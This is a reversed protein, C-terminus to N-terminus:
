EWIDNKDVIRESFRDIFGELRKWKAPLENYPFIIADPRYQFSIKDINKENIYITMQSCNVTNIGSIKEFEDKLVYTTQGNGTVFMTALENEKFFGTMNKGKIQNFLDLSDKSTIFADKQLEMRDLQEDVLFLIMHESTLQYDNSWLIPSEFMHISSDRMYYFLEQCKGQLNHSYFKVGTYAKIQRYKLSDLNAIITDSHLYLSDEDLEALLLPKKTIISSDAHEFYEAKQGYITYNNVSDAIEVNKIAIGYGLNRDYFLSDGSLKQQENKLYANQNYQSCDTITNYWGNECYILNEESQITTPGFFYAIEDMSHFHLTDCKILYDPNDLVVSDKFILLKSESVYNGKQSTLINEGNLIRASNYYSAINTELSYNLQNTTLVMNKDKLTIDEYVVAKKSNGDYNLRQGNLFITDGQNININNFAEFRNDKFYHWASDCSMIAGKHKFKVHGILRRIDPFKEQDFYTFDSNIIQIKTKEQAYLGNVFFM